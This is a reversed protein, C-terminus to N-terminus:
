GGHGPVEADDAKEGCGPAIPSLNRRKFSGGEGPQETGCRRAAAPFVAWGEGADGSPAPTGPAIAMGM